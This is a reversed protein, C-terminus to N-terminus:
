AADEEEYDDEFIDWAASWVLFEELDERTEYDEVTAGSSRIIGRLFDDSLPRLQNQVYPLESVQQVDYDNPGTHCIDNVESGLLMFEVYKYSGDSLHSEKYAWYGKENIKGM